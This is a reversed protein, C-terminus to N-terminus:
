ARFKTVGQEHIAREKVIERDCLGSQRSLQMQQKACRAAPLSLRVSLIICLARVSNVLHNGIGECQTELSYHHEDDASNEQAAAQMEDFLREVGRLIGEL